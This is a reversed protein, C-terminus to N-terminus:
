AGGGGRDERPLLLAAAPPLYAPDPFAVRGLRIYAELTGPYDTGTLEQYRGITDRGREFRLVAESVVRSEETYGLRMLLAAADRLSDAYSQRRLVTV